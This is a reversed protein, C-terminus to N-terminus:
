EDTVVENMKVDCDEAGWAKRVQFHYCVGIRYLGSYKRLYRDYYGGGMGIRDGERSFVVGPVLMVSHTGPVLPEEGEPELIGFSGKRSLESLTRVPYFDMEDGRCRPFAVRCGHGLAWKALEGLDAERGIASYLFLSKAQAVREHEMLKRCLRHSREGAETESISSRLSRLEKRLLAKKESRDVRHAGPNEGPQGLGPMEPNVKAQDQESTWPTKEQQGFRFRASRSAEERVTM